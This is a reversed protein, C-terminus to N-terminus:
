CINESFMDSVIFLCIGHARLLVPDHEIEKVTAGGLKATVEIAAVVTPSLPDQIVGASVTVAGLALLYGPLPPKFFSFGFEQGYGVEMDYKCQGM